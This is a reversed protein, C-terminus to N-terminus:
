KIPDASNRNFIVYEAVYSHRYVQSLLDVTVNANYCTTISGLGRVKQMKHAILIYNLDPSVSYNETDLLRQFLFSVHISANRQELRWREALLRSVSVFTSNDMLLESEESIVDHLMVEGERSRFIFQESGPFAFTQQTMRSTVIHLERVQWGHQTSPDRNSHKTSCTTSRSRTATTASGTVQLCSATSVFVDFSRVPFLVSCTHWAHKQMINVSKNPQSDSIDKIFNWPCKMNHETDNKRWNKWTFHM